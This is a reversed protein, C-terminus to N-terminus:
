EFGACRYMFEIYDLYYFYSESMWFVDLSSKKTVNQQQLREFEQLAKAFGINPRIIPRAKYVINWAHYLGMGAYKMLYALVCTPSRSVGAHCHILVRHGRTRALEIASTIADLYEIIPEKPLDQIQFDHYIINPIAPSDFGWGIRIVRSIGVKALIDERCARFSSLYLFDPIIESPQETQKKFWVSDVLDKQTQALLRLDIGKLPGLKSHDVAKPLPTHKTLWPYNKIFSIIGKSLYFVNKCKAELTIYSVIKPALQFGSEDYVLVNNGIRLDFMSNIIKDRLDPNTYGNGPGMNNTDNKTPIGQVGNSMTEIGFEEESSDELLKELGKNESDLFDFSFVRAGPISLQPIECVDIILTELYNQSLFSIAEQETLGKSITMFTYRKKPSSKLAV